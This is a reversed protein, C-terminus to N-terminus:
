GLARAVRVRERAAGAGIGIRWSLWRACSKFGAHHWGQSADYRRILVLLAYTAVTIHAALEAIRDSLAEVEEPTLDDGEFEELGDHDYM